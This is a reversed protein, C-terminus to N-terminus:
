CAADPQNYIGMSIRPMQTEHSFQTDMGCQYAMMTICQAFRFSM